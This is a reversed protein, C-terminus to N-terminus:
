LLSSAELYLKIRVRERLGEILQVSVATLIGSFSHLGGNIEM